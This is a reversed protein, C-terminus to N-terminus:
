PNIHEWFGIPEQGIRWFAVGCIPKSRYLNMKQELSPLTEFHVHVSVNTTYQYTGGTEASTDPTIGRARLDSWIEPNRYARATTETQWSRGYLPLGMILKEPDITQTAYAYIKKCWDASAIPGPADGRSHEDYAMIIVRDAILNIFPYDFADDPHKKKHDAWRAMAAVSFTKDEPLAKKVAALFNLYNIGDEPAVSEIDIQLGDFPAAREVIRSIIRNRLPLEPNLYLHALTQNWPISVVLHYRMHGPLGDPPSLPGGKLNGDGDIVTSFCAVDTIPSNTPFYKNEGNYLYAWIESFPQATSSHAIFLLITISLYFKM